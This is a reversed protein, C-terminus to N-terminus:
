RNRWSLGVSFASTEDKVRIQWHKVPDSLNMVCALTCMPVKLMCYSKQMLRSRKRFGVELFTERM